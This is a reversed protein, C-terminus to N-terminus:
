AGKKPFALVKCSATEKSEKPLTFRNFRIQIYAWGKSNTQDYAKTCAGIWWEISNSPRRDENEAIALLKDYEEPTFLTFGVTVRKTIKSSVQKM